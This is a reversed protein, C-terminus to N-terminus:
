IRLIHAQLLVDRGAHWVSAPTIEGGVRLPNPSLLNFSPLVALHISADAPRSSDQKQMLTADLPCCSARHNQNKHSEGSPNRGHNYCPPRTGTDTNASALHEGALQTSECQPAALTPQACGLLCALFGFWCSLVTSLIARPFHVRVSVFRVLKQFDEALEHSFTREPVFM